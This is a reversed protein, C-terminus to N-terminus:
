RDLLARLLQASVVHRNPTQYYTLCSCGVEKDDAAQKTYPERATNELAKWATGLAKQMDTMGLEPTAAKLEDRKESCFFFFASTPKKIKKLPPEDGDEAARSGDAGDAAPESEEVGGMGESEDMDEAGGDVGEVTPAPAPAPAPDPAPAAPEPAAPAVAPAEASAVAAVTEVVLQPEQAPVDVEM